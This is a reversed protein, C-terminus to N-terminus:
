ALPSWHGQSFSHEAKYSTCWFIACYIFGLPFKSPFPTSTSSFLQVSGTDRWTLTILTYNLYHASVLPGSQRSTAALASSDRPSPRVNVDGLAELGSSFWSRNITVQGMGHCTGGEASQGRMKFAFLVWEKVHPHHTSHVELKQQEQHVAQV